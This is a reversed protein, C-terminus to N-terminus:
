QIRIPIDPQYDPWLLKALELALTELQSRAVKAGVVFNLNFGQMTPKHRVQVYVMARPIKDRLPEGAHADDTVTDYVSPAAPERPQLHLASARSEIRRLMEETAAGFEQKLQAQIPSAENATWVPHGSLIVLGVRENPVVWSAEGSM